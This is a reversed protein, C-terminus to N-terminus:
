GLVRKDIVSLFYSLAYLITVTCAFVILPNASWYVYPQIYSNTVSSFIACHLFWMNTSQKGILILIQEFLEWCKNKNERQVLNSIGFVIIPSYLFDIARFYYRGVFVVIFSALFIVWPNAKWIYSQLIGFVNYRNCIYGVAVCPFYHKLHNALEAILDIEVVKEVIFFVIVPVIIGFVFSHVVSRDMQHCLFYMLLLASVYFPVYWCFKMLENSFGAAEKVVDIISPRYNCGCIAFLLLFAFSIWYTKYFDVIKVAIWSLSKEKRLAFAWGSIFAFIGM